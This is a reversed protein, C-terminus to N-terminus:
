KQASNRLRGTQPRSRSNKGPAQETELEPEQSCLKTFSKKSTYVIHRFYSAVSNYINVLKNKVSSFIDFSTIYTGIYFQLQLRFRPRNFNVAGAGALCGQGAGPTEPESVRSKVSISLYATLGSDVATLTWSHPPWSSSTDYLRMM